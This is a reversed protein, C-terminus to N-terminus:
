FNGRGQGGEWEQDEIWKQWSKMLKNMTGVSCGFKDALYQQTPLKNGHPWKEKFEFKSERPYLKHRGETWEEIIKHLKLIKEDHDLDVKGQVVSWAGDLDYQAFFEDTQDPRLGRAKDFVIKVKMVKSGKERKEPTLILVLDAWDTKSSSGRPGPAAKGMHDIVISSFGSGRLKFLFKGIPYWADSDNEKYSSLSRLNDLILLPKKNTLKEVKILYNKILQQGHESVLDPFQQKDQFSFNLMHFYNDPHDGWKKLYPAERDIPDTPYMEADIYVVPYCYPISMGLFSHGRTIAVCMGIVFESKGTGKPGVIFNFSKDFLLNEIIFSKPEIDLERYDKMDYGVLEKQDTTGPENDVAGPDHNFALDEFQAPDWLDNPPDETKKKKAFHEVGSLNDIWNNLNRNLHDLNYKDKNASDLQHQIEEKPLKPNFYKNLEYLDTDLKNYKLYVGVNFLAKHRRGEVQGIAAVILPHKRFKVRYEYQNKDLTEGWTTFCRQNPKSYPLFVWYQDSVDGPLCHDLDVDKEEVFPLKKIREVLKNRAKKGKDLNTWNDFHFYIHWKGSISKIPNLETSIKWLANTITKWEIKKDFDIVLYRVGGKAKNIPSQGQTLTGNLHKELNIKVGEVSKCDKRGDPKIGDKHFREDLYGYGEERGAFISEFKNQNINLQDM